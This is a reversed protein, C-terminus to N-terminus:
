KGDRREKEIELFMKDIRSAKAPTDDFIFILAPIKKLSLRKRLVQRIYPAARELAHAASEKERASGLISYFARVTKKDASLEVGTITLFGTLGPDKVGQLALAIEARFLEQLREGRGFM